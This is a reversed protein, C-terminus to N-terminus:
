TNAAIVAAIREGLTIAALQGYHLGDHLALDSTEVTYVGIGDAAAVAAQAARIQGITTPNGLNCSPNLLPIVWKADTYGSLARVNAIFAALNTEYAAADPASASDSEGQIWVVWPVPSAPPSPHGSYAPVTTGSLRTWAAGSPSAWDTALTSSGRCCMVIQPALNYDRVLKMATVLDPGGQNIGPNLDQGGWPTNNWIGGFYYDKYAWVRPDTHPGRWKNIETWADLDSGMSNSQGMWLINPVARTAMQAATPLGFASAFYAEWQDREATTMARGVIYLAGLKMPVPSANATSAGISLTSSGLAATNNNAGTQAGALANANSRIASVESAGALTFDVQCTVVKPTTLDETNANSRWFNSGINTRTYFTLSNTNTINDYLAFGSVTFGGNSGGYEYAIRSASTGDIEGVLFVTVGTKGSMAAMAGTLLRWQTYGLSQGIIFAPYEGGLGTADYVPRTTTLGTAHYGNASLDNVQDIAGGSESRASLRSDIAFILDPDALPSFGAGGAGGGIGRFGPRRAAGVGARRM